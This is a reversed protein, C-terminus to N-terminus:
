HKEQHESPQGSFGFIHHLHHGELCLGADGGVVHSIEAQIHAILHFHHGELKVYQQGFANGEVGGVAQVGKLEVLLANGVGHVAFAVLCELIVHLM